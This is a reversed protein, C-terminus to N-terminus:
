WDERGHGTSDLDIRARATYQNVSGANVEPAVGYPYLTLSATEGAGKLNITITPRDKGVENSLPVDSADILDGDALIEVDTDYMFAPFKIPKVFTDERWQGYEGSFVSGADLTMLMLWNRTRDHYLGIPRQGLNERQAYMILLDNVQEVSHKFVRKQNGVLRPVVLSAMIGIIVVVIIMEILTFARHNAASHDM